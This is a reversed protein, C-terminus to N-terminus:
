PERAARKKPKRKEFGAEVIKSLRRWTGRSVLLGGSMASGMYKRQYDIWLGLRKAPQSGEFVMGVRFWLSQEHRDILNVEGRGEVDLWDGMYGVPKKPEVTESALEVATEYLSITPYPWGTASYENSTLRRLTQEQNGYKPGWRVSQEIKENKHNKVKRTFIAHANTSRYGLHKLLRKMDSETLARVEKGVEIYGKKHTM